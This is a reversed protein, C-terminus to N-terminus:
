LWCVEAIKKLFSHELSQIPNSQQHISSWKRLMQLTELQFVTLTLKKPTPFWFIRITLQERGYVNHYLKNFCLYTCISILLYDYLWSYWFSFLKMRKGLLLKM